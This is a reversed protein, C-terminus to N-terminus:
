WVSLRLAWNNKKQKPQERKNLFFFLIGTHVPWLGSSVSLVFACCATHAYVHPSTFDTISHLQCIENLIEPSCKCRDAGRRLVRMVWNLHGWRGSTHLLRTTYVSLPFLNKWMTERVCVRMHKANCLEQKSSQGHTKCPQWHFFFFSFWM